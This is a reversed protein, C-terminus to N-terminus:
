AVLSIVKKWRGTPRSVETMELSGTREEVDRERAWDRSGFLKLWKEVESEIIVM